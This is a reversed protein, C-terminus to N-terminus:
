HNASGPEAMKRHQKALAEAPTVNAVASMMKNKWGSVVDGEGDMMAEFGVQAVFVADDKDAQGVSTDMMDAREFFETDTAGPMLCTVTIGTDKLEERLAFSFSNIFAKTGNYVAQFTGPMFGAISGTLLIRGAGRSRMQQGVQQVLYTTGVINTDIVRKAGAFDQDLFGKGLGRGANAMLLDVSRGDAEIAELLRDVGGTTSLDAEVSQVVVGFDSLHAAMDNIKAEDAAIILDYGKSAAIRALELGIGSSAGTIVALGASSQSMTM